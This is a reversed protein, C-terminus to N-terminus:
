APPNLDKSSSDQLTDVPESPKIINQEVVIEGTAGLIVLHEQDDRRLIVLRRRADLPLSEIIALRRKEGSKINAVASLGLKKLFFSLGGMLGLVVAMALFLKMLQPMDTAVVDM